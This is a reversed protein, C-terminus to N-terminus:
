LENCDGIGACGQSFFEDIDLILENNNTLKFGKKILYPDYSKYYIKKIGQNSLKNLIGRLLSDGLNDGRSDEKIILYHLLWKSEKEKVKSVGLIEEDELVMYITGSLDLDDVNENVLINIIDKSENTKYERLIIMYEEM